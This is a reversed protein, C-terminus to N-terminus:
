HAVLDRVAGRVFRREYFQRDIHSRFQALSVRRSAQIKPRERLVRPLGAVADRYLRFLTKWHGQLLHRVVIGGHLLIFWPLHRVLIWGPISKAAMWISNRIGHYLIFDSYGGTTSGQGAHHAVVDDVYGVSAGLLRARVCLDTDEAYCFYSPDFVYGHVRAVDELFRRSLIAFGGTPGLYADNTSKRNSALLSKYLAIGLSDVEEAAGGQAPKHMRGGMLDHSGMGALCADLGASEVVADSNVLLVRACLPDRLAEDILQNCGQAFGLNVESRIIRVGAGEGAHAAELRRYEEAESANDLVLVHTVGAGLLSRTCRRTLEATNFNVVAAFLDDKQAPVM